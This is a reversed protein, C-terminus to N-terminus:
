KQKMFANMAKQLLSEENEIITQPANLKRLEEVRKALRGIENALDVNSNVELVAKAEGKLRLLVVEALEGLDILEAAQKLHNAARELNVELGETGELYHVALEWHALGIEAGSDDYRLSSLECLDDLLDDVKKCSFDKAALLWKYSKRDNDSDSKGDMLNYLADLNGEHADKAPNKSEENM